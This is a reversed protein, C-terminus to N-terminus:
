PSNVQRYGGSVQALLERSLNGMVNVFLLEKEDAKLMAVGVIADESEKLLVFVLKGEEMVRVIPQWDDEALNSAVASLKSALASSDARDNLQYVKVRVGDIARLIARTEPDDDSYRAAFRLVRPGLSISSERRMGEYQAASFDAYGAGHTPATVGCGTACVLTVVAALAILARSL